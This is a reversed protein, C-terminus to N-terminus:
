PDSRTNLGAKSSKAAKQWKQACGEELALIESVV